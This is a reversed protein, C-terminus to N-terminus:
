GVKSWWDGALQVPALWGVLVVIEIGARNATLLDVHAVQALDNPVFPRPVPRQQQQNILRLHREFPAVNRQGPGRQCGGKLLQEM